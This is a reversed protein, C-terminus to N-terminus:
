SNTRCAPKVSVLQQDENTLRRSRGGWAALAHRHTKMTQQGHLKINGSLRQKTSANSKPRHLVILDGSLQASRSRLLYNRSYISSPLRTSDVASRSREVDMTVPVRVQFGHGNGQGVSVINDITTSSSFASEKVGSIVTRSDSGPIAIFRPASQRITLAGSYLSERALSRSNLEAIRHSLVHEKQNIQSARASLLSVWSAFGVTGLTMVVLSMLITSGSELPMQGTNRSKMLCCKCQHICLSRSFITQGAEWIQM